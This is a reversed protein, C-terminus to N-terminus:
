GLGDLRSEREVRPGGISGTLLVVLLGIEVVGSLYPLGCRERAGEGAEAGAVLAVQIHGIQENELGTGDFKSGAVAFAWVGSGGHRAHPIFGGKTWTTFAAIVAM